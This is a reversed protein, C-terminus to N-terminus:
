HEVYDLLMNLSIEYLQFLDTASHNDGVTYPLGVATIGTKDALWESPKPDAFPTRLVFAPNETNIKQLLESLHSSSPSIGPKPEITDLLSMGSWNIFYSFSRHHSVVKIGKLRETKNRWSTGAKSWKELFSELARAYSDENKPDLQILVASLAKSIRTINRPDLHIHPNGQPHIDGDARDIRTPIELKRVYDAAMFYGPLGNRLKTNGARRLLLPLWGVELDAGTCVLLDARRVRAILSPRAQLHHPDQFATTASFVNLEDASIERVLSAWEPECTFVSLKAQCANAIILCLAFLAPKVCLSRRLQHGFKSTKM